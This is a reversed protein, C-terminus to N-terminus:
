YENDARSNFSRGNHQCASFAVLVPTQQQRLLCMPSTAATVAVDRVTPATQRAAAAVQGVM